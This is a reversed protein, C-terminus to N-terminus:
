RKGISKLHEQAAAIYQEAADFPNPRDIQRSGGGPMIKYQLEVNEIDTTHVYGPITWAGGIEIDPLEEKMDYLDFVTKERVSIALGDGLIYRNGSRTRVIVRDFPSGIPNAYKHEGWVIRDGKEAFLLNVAGDNYEVTEQSRFAEKEQTTPIPDLHSM